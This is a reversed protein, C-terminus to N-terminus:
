RRRARRRQRRRVGAVSGPSAPRGFTDIFLSCHGAESPIEGELVDVTYTIADGALTPDVLVVLADDPPADDDVDLFSLVANPPDIAFSNEGESWLDVFRQTSVHGFERKPRDSFYLTSHALGHLTIKDATSSLGTASQVFLADIEELYQETVDSMDAEREDAGSSARGDYEQSSPSAVV